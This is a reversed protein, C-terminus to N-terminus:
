LPRISRLFDEFRADARLPRLSSNAALFILLPDRKEVAKALSDYVGDFDGLSLHLIALACSSVYRMESDSKLRRLISATEDRHGTFALSAGTAGLFLDSPPGEAQWRSEELAQACKGEALYLMILYFRAPFSGPQLDKAIQLWHEAKRFDGLGLYAAGLAYNTRNSLPDLQM